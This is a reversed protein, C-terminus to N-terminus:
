TSPRWCRPVSCCSSTTTSSPSRSCFRRSRITCYPLERCVWSDWSRPCGPIHRRSSRKRRPSLCSVVLFWFYDILAFNENPLGGRSMPVVEQCLVIFYQSLTVVMIFQNTIRLQKADHTSAYFYIIYAWYLFVFVLSNKNLVILMFLAGIFRQQIDLFFNLTRLISFKKANAHYYILVNHPITM